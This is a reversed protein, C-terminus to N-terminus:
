RKTWVETQSGIKM